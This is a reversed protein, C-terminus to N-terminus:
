EHIKIWEITNEESFKIVMTKTHLTWFGLRTKTILYHLYNKDTRYYTPEGLLNLIEDKNLTRITDNYVVDNLMKERYPYAEGDKMEWKVKDFVMDIGQKMGENEANKDGDSKCAICSVFLLVIFIRIRM